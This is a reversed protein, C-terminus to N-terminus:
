GLEWDDLDYKLSIICSVPFYVFEMPANIDFLIQGVDLEVLALKESWINFDPQPISEIIRNLKNSM